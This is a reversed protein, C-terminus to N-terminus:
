PNDENTPLEWCLKDENWYYLENSNPSPIPAYWHFDNLSLLWSSYPKPPIFADYEESYYYGIGAFNKRFGNNTPHTNANTNYSTQLWVGDIGYEKIKQQGIPESAPFELNGCDENNLVIVATVFNNEIKAFHAM